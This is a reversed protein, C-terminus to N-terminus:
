ELGLEKWKKDVLAKTKADMLNTPGHVALDKAQGSAPPM